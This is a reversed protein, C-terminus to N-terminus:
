FQEVGTERWMEELEESVLQQITRRQIASAVLLTTLYIMFLYIYLLM